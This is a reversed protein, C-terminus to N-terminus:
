ADVKAGSDLSVEKTSMEDVLDAIEDVLKLLEGKTKTLKVGLVDVELAGWMKLLAIASSDVLGADVVKKVLESSM